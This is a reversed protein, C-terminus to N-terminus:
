SAVGRRAKVRATFREAQAATMKVTRAKESATLEFVNPDGKPTNKGGPTRSKSLAEVRKSLEDITEITLRKVPKRDEPDGDWAYAPTEVGLKILEAILNRRTALENKSADAEASRGLKALREIEKIAGPASKFGTFKLARLAFAKMEPDEEPVEDPAEALAAEDDEAPEEAEGGGAAAVLMEELIKLADDAKGEKVAVMAAKITEPDMTTDRELFRATGIREALRRRAAILDQPHFTAPMACIAANLIGTPRVGDADVNFAPSIYRQKKSRIRDEGDPTWEVNVAWLEGDRVELDFWGRADSADPRSSADAELADHNLDIMYHVGWQRAAALVQEAAQEDFLVQGKHTDNIGARFIRFESPPESGLDGGLGLRIM